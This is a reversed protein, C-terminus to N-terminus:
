NFTDDFIGLIAYFSNWLKRRVNPNNAFSHELVQLFPDAKLARMIDFKASLSYVIAVDIQVGDSARRWVAITNHDLPLDYPKNFGPIPEFGLSELYEDSVSAKSAVFDWDSNKTHTGLFRSGTLHMRENALLKKLAQKITPTRSKTQKQKM